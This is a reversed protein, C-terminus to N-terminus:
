QLPTTIGWLLPLRDVGVKSRLSPVFVLNRGVNSAIFLGIGLARQTLGIREKKKPKKLRFLM